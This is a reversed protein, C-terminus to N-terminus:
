YNTGGVQSNPSLIIDNQGEFRSNQSNKSNQGSFTSTCVIPVALGLDLDYCWRIASKSYRCSWFYGSFCTYVLGLTRTPLPILEAECVFLCVFLVTHSYTDAITDARGSVWVYVYVCMWVRVHVSMYVCLCVCLCVCMCVCVRVLRCSLVYWRQRRLLPM